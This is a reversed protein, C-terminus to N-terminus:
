RNGKGSPCPVETLDEIALLIRDENGDEDQLLRANLLMRKFGIEPFLHEVLYDQFSKHKEIIEHLLQRLEPIDWQRSGLEFLRNRETKESTSRFTDYFSRNATVVRMRSDLVLLSERVTDVINEAFRKASSVAKASMREMKEQSKKQADINVFTLVVGEIVHEDPRYVMMRMRHWHGDKSRIEEDVGSLTKLVQGAKKALDDYELNHTIHDLPRGADSEILNLLRTAKPTFRRLRLENDLFVIAIGTSNLVSNVSKYTERLEGMKSLLESNVTNLEENLSQLEERSSELEENTSQLEENSSNLEENSSQLEENSAQLEEMASRYDQRVRMLEEELEVALQGNKEGARHSEPEQDSQPPEPLEEFIVLRCDQLPPEDFRKVVLDIEQYEHNTRVRVKRERIERQEQNVRRLAALIPFRLGERAMDGIQLSPQGPAPELYKGTRGHYYLIEGRQNVLVCAPTHEQMLVKEVARGRNLGPREPQGAAEPEEVYREFKKSTPFELVAHVLHNGKKYISYQKNVPEFLDFYRGVSESPGLFLFGEDKLAYHFLPILRNQAEPKLYILLNRCVLLDLKSFPPDSLLNQEAFVVRERIDSKLRYRSDEKTFFRKLREPSVDSVINQVYVGMRAKEIARHDIDTGFIQLERSIDREELCELLLIAMSYAEEGTACGPIWVRLTEAGPRSVLDPLVHQKLLDFAEPDRFFNTVGILLDQFLLRVEEPERHLLDLYDLTNRSRNISMRHEIRRILTNEKYLSFDHRTRNALFALIHPLPDPEKQGETEPTHQITAPHRFYQILRQPMEGPSLVYDVLGTEIASRPMGTHRASDPSQAVALGAKEKIMRLGQTGDTGTGSLIIGAALEGCQEALHKMFLDVPMHIETRDPRTKLSFEGHNLVPDRDSPPLYVTDPELPMGDEIVIVAIKSKRKILDPLLSHHAPDTHTIVVFALGSDAPVAEFLTELAELGGASAGIAVVPFGREEAARPSLENAGPEKEDGNESPEPEGSKKEELVPRKGQKARHQQPPKDGEFTREQGGGPGTIKKPRGRGKKKDKEAM